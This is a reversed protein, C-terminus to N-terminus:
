TNSAAYPLCVWCNSHRIMGGASRCAAHYAPSSVCRSALNIPLPQSTTSACSLRLAVAIALGAVDPARRVRMVALDAVVANSVKVVVAVGHISADAFEVLAPEGEEQECGETGAHQQESPRELDQDGGTEGTRM